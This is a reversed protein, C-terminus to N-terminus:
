HPIHAHAIMALVCVLSSSALSIAAILAKNNGMYEVADSATAGNIQSLEREYEAVQNKAADLSMEVTTKRDLLSSQARSDITTRKHPHNKGAPLGAIKCAERYTKAVCLVTTAGLEFSYEYM